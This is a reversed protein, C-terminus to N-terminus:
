NPTEIGRNDPYILHDSLTGYGGKSPTKALILSMSEQLKWQGLDMRCISDGWKRNKQGTSEGGDEGWRIGETEIRM